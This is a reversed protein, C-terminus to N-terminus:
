ECFQNLQKCQIQADTMFLPVIGMSVIIPTLAIVIIFLLITIVDSISTNEKETSM